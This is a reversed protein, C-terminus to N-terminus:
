DAKKESNGDSAGRSEEDRRRDQLIDPAPAFKSKGRIRKGYIYFLFPMPIMLVALCGLFTMGWNIGIGAYSTLEISSHLQALGHSQGDFMYTAFLPFVAGFISRLFTNAAIASAAFMLYSDIIYNLLQLFVCFIGFGLFLGSLTPVIWPISSTYGTWGFWFLGASMLEHNQAVCIIRLMGIAFLIGGLMPLYLRWEPVLVNDNSELKRIYWGNMLITVLLGITVGIVMGIYPLGSVGPAFGHISGFVIAYATLSLYLIGYLFSMYLTVLLVIPETFLIRIPRGVNKSILEQFDVEVEEQKAHIGWNRTLRRLEAAKSVLIVPGYSEKQFFLALAASAFGIFSPIYQTWRWGLSGNITIFGGIMPGLLPGNFITGSFVAM